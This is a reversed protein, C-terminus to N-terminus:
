KKLDSKIEEIAMRLKSIMKGLSNAVQPLREPGLFILALVAVVLIESTGLGFM